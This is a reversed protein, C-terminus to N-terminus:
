MPMALGLALILAAASAGIAAVTPLVRRQARRTGRARPRVYHGARPPRKRSSSSQLLAPLRQWIGRGWLMRGELLVLPGDFLTGGDLGVILHSGDIAWRGRRISGLSNVPPIWHAKGNADLSLRGRAHRADEGHPAFGWFGVVSSAEIVRVRPRRRGSRAYRSFQKTSHPEM